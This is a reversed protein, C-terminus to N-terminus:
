GDGVERDIMAFVEDHSMAALDEPRVEAAEAEEASLSALAARMRMGVRERAGGERDISVLARDLAALAEDVEQEPTAAPGGAACREALYTALTAPTPYDFALTAPLQLGSASGLRNRLEVAALSDFGLEQFPRDPDIGEASRHGLVTAIQGRVLELAVAPREEAAVGALRAALSAERSRGHAPV